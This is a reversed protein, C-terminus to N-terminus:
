RRKAVQRRSALYAFPGALMGLRELWVLRPPYGAPLRANKASNPSLVHHVACPLRRAAAALLVPRDLMCKTLYATLGTGYGYVQRKLAALSGAHRHRVVARPEYVLRHGRYIVEFFASLDDGGRARTGAGLAPDFGGLALLAARRFAMNAGSGLRGAAFPYLPDDPRHADLDFVRRVSGKNFGAFGELLLQASTTLEYPVIMGTVCAVDDTSAFAEIIHELWSRDAVVDDDTFAVLPTTVSELGRNHTAALGARPGPVYRVPGRAAHRAVVVPTLDGGPDDDVVVIEAAPYSQALLSELCASLPRPRNRTAVIVSIASM